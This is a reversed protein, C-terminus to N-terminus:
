ADAGVPYRVGTLEESLTWLRAATEPDKAEPITDVVVPRGKREKKGDPGYYQGGEANPDAAARLQPLAGQDVTMSVMPLLASVIVRLPANLGNAVLRTTTFGPHAILSRV